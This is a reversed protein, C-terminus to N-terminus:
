ANRCCTALTQKLSGILFIPFIYRFETGAIRFKTKIKKNEHCALHWLFSFNLQSKETVLPSLNYVVEVKKSPSFIRVFHFNQRIHM